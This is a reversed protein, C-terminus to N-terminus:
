CINFVANSINKANTDQNNSSHISILMHEKLLINYGQCTIEAIEM